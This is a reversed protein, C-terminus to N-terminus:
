LEFISRIAMLDVGTLLGTRRQAEGKNINVKVGSKKDRSYIFTAPVLGPM